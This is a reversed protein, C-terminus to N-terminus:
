REDMIEKIADHLDQNKIRQIVQTEYRQDKRRLAILHQAYYLHSEYRMDGLNSDIEDIIDVTLKGDMYFRTLLDLANAQIWDYEGFAIEKLMPVAPTGIHYIVEFITYQCASLWGTLGLQSQDVDDPITLNAHMRSRLVPLTKPSMQAAVTKTQDFFKDPATFMLGALHPIVTDIVHNDIM